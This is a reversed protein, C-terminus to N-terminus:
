WSRTNYVEMMMPLPFLFFLFFPFRRIFFFPPPPFFPAGDFVKERLERPVAKSWGRSFFFFFFPRQFFFVLFPSFARGQVRIGLVLSVHRQPHLCFFTLFFSPLFLPCCHTRIEAKEARGLKVDRNQPPFPSLLSFSLNLILPFLFSFFFFSPLPPSNTERTNCARATTPDMEDLDLNPPGCLFLWPFFSFFPSPFFLPQLRAV